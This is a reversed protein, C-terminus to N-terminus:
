FPTMLDLFPDLGESLARLEFVQFFIPLLLDLVFIVAVEDLCPVVPLLGKSFVVFESVFRVVEHVPVKNV